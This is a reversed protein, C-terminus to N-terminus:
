ANLFAYANFTYDKGFQRVGIPQQRQMCLRPSPIIQESPIFGYEHDFIPWNSFYYTQPRESSRAKKM